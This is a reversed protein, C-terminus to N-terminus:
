ATPTSARRTATACCSGARRSSSPSPTSRRTCARTPQPFSASSRCSCRPPTSSTASSRRPTAGGASAGAAVSSRRASATASRRGLCGSPRARRAEPGPPDRPGARGLVHGELLPSTAARRADGVHRRRPRDLAPRRRGGPRRHLAPDGPAPRRAARSLARDRRAAGRVRRAPDPGVRRQGRPGAPLRALWAPAAARARGPRPARRHRVHDAAERRRSRGGLVDHVLRVGAGRRPVLRHLAGAGHPERRAGVRLPLGM